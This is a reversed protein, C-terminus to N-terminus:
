SCNPAINVVTQFAGVTRLYKVYMTQCCVGKMDSIRVLVGLAPSPGAAWAWRENPCSLKGALDRQLWMEALVEGRQM